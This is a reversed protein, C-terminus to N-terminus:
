YLNNSRTWTGPFTALFGFFFIEFCGPLLKGPKKFLASLSFRAETGGLDECDALTIGKYVLVVVRTPRATTQTPAIQHTRPM